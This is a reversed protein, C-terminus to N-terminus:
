WRTGPRTFSDEIKRRRMMLGVTDPRDEDFRRLTAEFARIYIASGAAHMVLVMFTGFLGIMAIYAPSAPGQGDNDRLAREYTEPSGVTASMGALLVAAPPLLVLAGLLALLSVHYTYATRRWMKLLVALSILLAPLGAGVGLLPPFWDPLGAVAAAGWSLVGASLLM